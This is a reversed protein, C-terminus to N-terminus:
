KAKKSKGSRSPMEHVSDLKQQAEDVDDQQSDISEQQTNIDEQTAAAKEDPTWEFVHYGEEDGYVELTGHEVGVGHPTVKAPIGNGKLEEVILQERTGKFFGQQASEVKTRHKITSM